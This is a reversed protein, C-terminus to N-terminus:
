PHPLHPKRHESIVQDWRERREASDAKAQDVGKVQDTRHFVSFARQRFSSVYSLFTKV